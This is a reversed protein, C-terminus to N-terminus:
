ADTGGQAQPDLMNMAESFANKVDERDLLRLLQPWKELLQECCYKTENKLMSAPYFHPKEEMLPINAWALAPAEFDYHAQLMVAYLSIAHLMRQLADPKEHKDYTVSATTQASRFAKGMHECVRCYCEVVPVSQAPCLGVKEDLTEKKRVLFPRFGFPTEQLDLEYCLMVQGISELTQLAFTEVKELAARAKESLAGAPIEPDTFLTLLVPMQAPQGLPSRIFAVELDQLWSKTKKDYRAQLPAPLSAGLVHPWFQMGDNYPLYEYFGKYKGDFDFFKKRDCRLRPVKAKLLGPIRWMRERVSYYPLLKLGQSTYTLMSGYALSCVPIVDNHLGALIAMIETDVSIADLWVSMMSRDFGAQQALLFYAAGRIHAEESSPRQRRLRADDCHSYARITEYDGDTFQLLPTNDQLKDKEPGRLKELACALEQKELTWPDAPMFPVPRMFNPVSQQPMFPVKAYMQWMQEWPGVSLAPNIACTAPLAGESLAQKQNWSQLRAQRQEEQVLLNLAGRVSGYMVNVMRLAAYARKLNEIRPDNDSQELAYLFRSTGYLHLKDRLHLRDMILKRIVTIDLLRELPHTAEVPFPEATEKSTDKAQATLSTGRVYSGAVSREPDIAEEPPVALLTQGCGALLMLCLGFTMSEMRCHKRVDRVINFMMM